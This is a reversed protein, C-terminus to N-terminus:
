AEKDINNKKSKSSLSKTNQKIMKIEQKIPDMNDNSKNEEIIRLQIDKLTNQLKSMNQTLSSIQDTISQLKM